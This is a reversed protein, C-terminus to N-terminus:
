SKAAFIRIADRTTDLMYYRKGDPSMEVTVRVGIVKECQEGGCDGRQVQRQGHIAQHVDTSRFEAALIDGNRCASAPKKPECCGGFDTAKV